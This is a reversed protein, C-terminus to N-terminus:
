TTICITRSPVTLTIIPGVKSLCTQLTLLLGTTDYMVVYIAYIACARYIDGFRYPQYCRPLVLFYMMVLLVQFIWFNRKTQVVENHM